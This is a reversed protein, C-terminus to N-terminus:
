PYHWCSGHAALAPIVWYNSTTWSTLFSNPTGLSRTSEKSHSHLFHNLLPQNEQQNPNMFKSMVSIKPSLHYFACSILTKLITDGFVCPLVATKSESTRPQPNDRKWESEWIGLLNLHCWCCSWTTPLEVQFWKLIDLWRIRNITSVEFCFAANIHGLGM